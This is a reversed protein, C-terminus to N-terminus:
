KSELFEEGINMMIILWVMKSASFYPSLPLGTKRYIEEGKNKFREAIKAARACQWVIAYDIAKGNKDWAVVTERQNSIGM